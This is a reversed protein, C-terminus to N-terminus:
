LRGRRNIEQDAVTREMFIPQVNRQFGVKFRVPELLRGMSTVIPLQEGMVLTAILVPEPMSVMNIRICRPLPLHSCVRQEVPLLEQERVM